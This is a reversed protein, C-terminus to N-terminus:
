SYFLIGVTQNGFGIDVNNLDLVWNPFYRKWFDSVGGQCAKTALHHTMGNHVKSVHQVFVINLREILVQAEKIFNSTETLDSDQSNLLKAIQLADTEVHIGTSQEPIHQLGKCIALAELWQIKWPRHICRLGAAM